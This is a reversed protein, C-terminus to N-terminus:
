PGAPGPGPRRGAALRRRLRRLHAEDMIAPAAMPRRGLPTRRRAAAGEPGAAASGEPAGSPGESDTAPVAPGDHATRAPEPLGTACPTRAAPRAQAAEEDGPIIRISVSRGAPRGAGSLPIELLPNDERPPPGRCPGRPAAAARAEESRLRRRLRRFDADSMASARAPQAPPPSSSARPGRPRLRRNPIYAQQSPELALDSRAPCQAIPEAANEAAPIAISRNFPSPFASFHLKPEDDMFDCSNGLSRLCNNVTKEAEADEWLVLQQESSYVFSQQDATKSLCNGNDNLNCPHSSSSTSQFSVLCCQSNQLTSYMPEFAVDIIEPQGESDYLTIKSKSGEDAAIANGISTRTETGQLISIDEGVLQYPPYGLIHSSSSEVDIVVHPLACTVLLRNMQNLTHYFQMHVIVTPTYSTKIQTHIIDTNALLVKCHHLRRHPMCRVRSIDGICM